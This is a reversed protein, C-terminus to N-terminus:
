FFLEIRQTMKSTWNQSDYEFILRSLEQRWTWSILPEIRQTLNLFYPTWNEPWIWLTTNEFFLEIRRTVNEFLTNNKSDYGHFLEIRQSMKKWFNLEKFWISFFPEIRHTMNILLTWNKSNNKYLFWNM